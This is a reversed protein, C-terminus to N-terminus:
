GKKRIERIDDDTLKSNKNNTGIQSKKLNLRYAHYM